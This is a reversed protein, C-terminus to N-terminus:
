QKIPKMLRDDDREWFEEALAPLVARNPDAFVFAGLPVQGLGRCPWGARLGAREQRCCPCTGRGCCGTRVGTCPAKYARARAALADGRGVPISGALLISGTRGRDGGASGPCPSVTVRHCRAPRPSPVRVRQGRGRRPDLVSRYRPRAVRDGTGSSHRPERSANGARPWPPLSAPGAPFHTVSGRGQLRPCAPTRHLGTGCGPWPVAPSLLPPSLPSLPPSSPVCPSLLPRPSPIGPSVLLHRSSIVRPSSVPLHRPSLLPCSSCLCHPSVLPSSPRPMLPSSLLVHPSTIPFVPFQHPFVLPPSPVHPSVLPSSIPLHHPFM